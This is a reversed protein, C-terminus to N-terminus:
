MESPLQIGLIDLGGKIVNYVKSLVDLRAAKEVPGSEMVRTTEYYRNVERALDYVYKAVKHPELDRASLEVTDPYDLLKIILAKEAKYDYEGDINNSDNKINDIIKKLRVGAYQVYPGSYGSLAFISKWEFM